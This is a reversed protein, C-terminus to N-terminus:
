AKVTLSRLYARASAFASVIRPAYSRCASEARPGLVAVAVAIVAGIAYIGYTDLAGSIVISAYNWQEAVILALKMVGYYVAITVLGAIALRPYIRERPLSLFSAIGFIPAGILPFLLVTLGAIGWVLVRFVNSTSKKAYTMKNM